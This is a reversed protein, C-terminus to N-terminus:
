VNLPNFMEMGKQSHSSALMRGASDTQHLFFESTTYCLALATVCSSRTAKVAAPCKAM